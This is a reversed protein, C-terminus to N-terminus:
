TYCLCELVLQFDCSLRSVKEFNNKKKPSQSSEEESSSEIDSQKRKPTANRPTKLSESLNGDVVRAPSDKLKRKKKQPSALTTLLNDIVPRMNDTSESATDSFKASMSEEKIASAMGNTNVTAEDESSSDSSSSVDHTPARNRERGQPKVTEAPTTEEESSSDSSSGSTEETM